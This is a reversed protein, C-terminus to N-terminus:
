LFILLKIISFCYPLYKLVTSYQCVLFSSGVMAKQKPSVRCCIVSACDVALGLFQHKMEDKLIYTLTKGDIILAFAAHPDQDLKIMQSANTLQNLIHEKVAQDTVFVLIDLMWHLFNGTVMKLSIYRKAM